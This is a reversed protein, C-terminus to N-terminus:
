FFMQQNDAIRNLSSKLQSVFKSKEFQYKILNHANNEITKIREESFDNWVLNMLYVFDNKNKAIMCNTGSICGKIGNFAAKDGLVITKCAMAEVTKNILGYGKYVPSIVMVRSQYFLTVDEIYPEAVFNSKCCPFIKSIQRVFKISNKGLFYIKCDNNNKLFPILIHKSFWFALKLYTGEFSACWGIGSKKESKYNHSIMNPINSVVIGKKSFFLRNFVQKDKETQLLILRSKSEIKKEIFYYYPIKLLSKIDLNRFKIGLTFNRWLVYTYCDSLQSVHILNKIKLEIIKKSTLLPGSIILNYPKFDFENLNTRTIISPEESNYCCIINQDSIILVTIRDYVTTLLKYLSNLAATVGDVVKLPSKPCVLLIKIPM